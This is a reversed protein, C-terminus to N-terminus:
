GLCNSWGCTTSLRGSAAGCRASALLFRLIYRVFSTVLAVHGLTCSVVKRDGVNRPQEIREAAGFLVLLVEVATGVAPIGRASRFYAVNALMRLAQPQLIEARVEGFALFYAAAVAEKWTHMMHRKERMIPTCRRSSKTSKGKRSPLPSVTLLWDVAEEKSEDLLAATVAVMDYLSRTSSITVDASRVSTRVREVLQARTRSKIDSIKTAVDDAKAPEMVGSVVKQLGKISATAEALGSGFAVRMVSLLTMMREYGDSLAEQNIRLKGVDARLDWTSHAVRQLVEQLPGLGRSVAETLM